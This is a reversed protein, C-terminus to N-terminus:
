TLREWWFVRRAKRDIRGRSYAALLTIAWLILMLTALM